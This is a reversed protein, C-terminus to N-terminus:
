LASLNKVPSKNTRNAIASAGDDIEVIALFEFRIQLVM